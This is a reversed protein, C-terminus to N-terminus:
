CRVPKNISGRDQQDPLKKIKVRHTDNLGWHVTSQRKAQIRKQISPTTAERPHWAPCKLPSKGEFDKHTTCQPLLQAIRQEFAKRDSGTTESGSLHPPRLQLLEDGVAHGAAGVLFTRPGESPRSARGAEGPAAIDLIKQWGSICLRSGMVQCPKETM